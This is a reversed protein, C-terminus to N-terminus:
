ASIKRWLRVIHPLPFCLLQECGIEQDEATIGAVSVNMYGLQGAMKEGDGYVISFHQNQLRMGRSFDLVPYPPGLACQSTIHPGSCSFNMGRIWTDSSGTDLVIKMPVGNFLADVSYQTAYRDVVSANGFSGENRVAAFLAAASPRGGASHVPERSIKVRQGEQIIRPVKINTLPKVRRINFGPISFLSTTDADDVSPPTGGIHNGLCIGAVLYLLFVRM